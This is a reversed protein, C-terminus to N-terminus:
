MLGDTRLDLFSQKFAEIIEDVDADAHADSLFFLHIGPVTVGHNMLHLYFEREAETNTNTVDRSTAIPERQFHLYFISGTNLLQAGIQNEQCFGNIADAM